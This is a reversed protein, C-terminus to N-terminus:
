HTYIVMVAGDKRRRKLRDSIDPEAPTSERHPRCIDILGSSRRM